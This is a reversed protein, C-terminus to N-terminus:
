HYQGYERATKCMLEIMGPQAHFIQGTSRLIYGGGAAGMVEPELGADLVRDVDCAPGRAVRVEVPDGVLALRAREQRMGAIEFLSSSRAGHPGESPM